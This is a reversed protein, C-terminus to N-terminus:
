IIPLLKGLKEIYEPHYINLMPMFNKDKMAMDVHARLWIGFDQNCKELEVEFMACSMSTSNGYEEVLGDYMLNAYKDQGEDYIKEIIYLNEKIENIQLRIDPIRKHNSSLIKSLKKENWMYFPTGDKLPKSIAFGDSIAKETALKTNKDKLENEILIKGLAIASIGFRKGIATQNKWVNKFKEKHRKSM